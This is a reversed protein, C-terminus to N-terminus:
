PGGPHGQTRGLGSRGIDLTSEDHRVATTDPGTPRVTQSWLHSSTHGVCKVKLSSPFDVNGVGRGGRGDSTGVPSGWVYFLCTRSSLNPFSRPGPYDTSM